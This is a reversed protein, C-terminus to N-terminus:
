LVELIEKVFNKIKEDESTLFNKIIDISKEVILFRKVQINM